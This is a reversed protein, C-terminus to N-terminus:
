PRDLQITRQGQGETEAAVVGAEDDVADVPLLQVPHLLRLRLRDRLGRESLGQASVSIHTGPETGALTLIDTAAATDVENLPTTLGRGTRKVAAEKRTWLAGLDDARVLANRLSQEGPAAIREFLADDFPLRGQVDVGVPVPALVCVCVSADHSLNFHPEGTGRFRPKGHPGRVVDPMPGDGCERWLYQLLAFAVVSAYRDRAHHYRDSRRRREAPLRSRLRLFEAEDLLDARAVALHIM